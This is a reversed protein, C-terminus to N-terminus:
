KSLLFRSCKQICSVLYFFTCYYEQPISWKTRNSQLLEKFFTNKWNRLSLAFFCFLCIPQLKNWSLYKFKICSLSFKQLKCFIRVMKFLAIAFSTYYNWPKYYFLFTITSDNQNLCWICFWIFICKEEIPDKKSKWSAYCSNPKLPNKFM